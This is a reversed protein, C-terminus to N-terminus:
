RMLVAKATLTGAPHTLRLFYVGAPPAGERGLDLSHTGAGLRGVEQSWVRRGGLDVLELRAPGADPLTFTVRLDTTVPNRRFGALALRWGGDPVGLVAPQISFTSDSKDQGVNGTTDRAV